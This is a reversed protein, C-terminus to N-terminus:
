STYIWVWCVIAVILPFRIPFIVQFGRAADRLRDLETYLLGATIRLLVLGTSLIGFIWALITIFDTNM